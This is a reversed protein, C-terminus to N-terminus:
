YSDGKTGNKKGGHLKLKESLLYGNILIDWLVSRDNDRSM